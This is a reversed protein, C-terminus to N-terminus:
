PRPKPSARYMLPVASVVTPKPSTTAVPMAKRRAVIASAALPKPMRDPAM